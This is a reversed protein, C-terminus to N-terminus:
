HGCSAPDRRPLTRLRRTATSPLEELLARDDPTMETLVRMQDRCRDAGTNKRTTIRCHSLDGARECSASCRM